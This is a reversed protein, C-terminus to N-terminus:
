TFISIFFKCNEIFELSAALRIVVDKLVFVVKLISSNKVAVTTIDLLKNYTAIAKYEITQLLLSM